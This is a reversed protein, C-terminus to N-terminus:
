TPQLPIFVQIDSKLSLSLLTLSFPLRNEHGGKSIAQRAMNSNARTITIRVGIRRAMLPRCSMWLPKTTCIRKCIFRPPVTQSLALPKQAILKRPGGARCCKERSIRRTLRISFGFVCGLTTPNALIKCLYSPVRQCAVCDHVLEFEGIEYELM